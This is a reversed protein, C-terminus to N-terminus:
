KESCKVRRRKVIAAASAALVLVAGTLALILRKKM